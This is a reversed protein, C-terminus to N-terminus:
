RAQISHWRKLDPSEYFTAADANAAGSSQKSAGRDIWARVAWNNIV